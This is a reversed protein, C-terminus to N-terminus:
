PEPAFVVGTDDGENVGNPDYLPGGEVKLDSPDLYGTVEQPGSLKLITQSGATSAELRVPDAFTGNSAVSGVTVTQGSELSVAGETTQNLSLSGLVTYHGRSQPAKGELVVNGYSWDAGRFIGRSAGDIVITAEEAYLSMEGPLFVLWESTTVRSTSLFTESELRPYIEYGAYISYGNTHLRSGTRWNMDASMRLPGTLEEFGQSEVDVLEGAVDITGIGILDVNGSYSVPGLLTLSGDVELNNGNGALTGYATLSGTEVPTKVVAEKGAPIELAEGLVPKGTPTWNAPHTIVGSTTLVKGASATAVLAFFLALASLGLRRV